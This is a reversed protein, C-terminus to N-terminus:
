ACWPKLIEAWYVLDDAQTQTITGNLALVKAESVYSCGPTALTLAVAVKALPHRHGGADIYQFSLAVLSGYAPAVRYTVSVTSGPNGAADRAGSCTVTYHGGAGRSSALVAAVAVGSTADTTTCSPAPATGLTYVAGNSPGHLEVTPPVTDINVTV